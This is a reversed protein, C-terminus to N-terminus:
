ATDRYGREDKDQYDLFYGSDRQGCRIEQHVSSETFQYDLMIQKNNDSQGEMYVRQDEVSAHYEEHSMDKFKM